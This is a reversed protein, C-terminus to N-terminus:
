AYVRERCSARGIQIINEKIKIIIKNIDRLGIMPIKNKIYKKM